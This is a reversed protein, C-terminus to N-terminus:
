EKRTATNQLSEHAEERFDLYWGRSVMEVDTATGESEKAKV